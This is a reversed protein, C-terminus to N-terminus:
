DGTPGRHGRAGGADESRAGRSVRAIARMVSLLVAPDLPGGGVAVAAGTALTRGAGPEVIYRGDARLQRVNRRVAPKAWMAPNMVPVLIVPAETACAVLSLLDSCAAHAIRFITHATAPLVLVLEAATALEVHPVRVGARQEWLDRWVRVGSGRLSAPRVLRQAAATLVVDLRTAFEARLRRVFPEVFCAAASGAVGLVLHRCRGSGEQRAPRGGPRRRGRRRGNVIVGRAVLREVWGALRGGRAGSLRRLERLELPVALAEWVAAARDVDLREFLDVAGDAGVVLMRDATTVAVAAPQRQYTM